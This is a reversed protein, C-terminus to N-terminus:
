KGWLWSKVFGTVGGSEKEVREELDPFDIHNLSIDFFLPKCPIHQFDPPLKALKPIDTSINFEELRDALLKDKNFSKMEEDILQTQLFASAHASCRQSYIMQNLEELETTVEGSGESLDSLQQQTTASHDSCRDYLVIANEWKKVSLHFEAIYYCRKTRYFQTYFDISKNIVGGEELSAIDRMDAYNQLIIDYLRVLDEPKAAKGVRQQQEPDVRLKEVVQEAMVLFRDITKCLRLYLLYDTMLEAEVQQAKSGVGKAKEAEKFLQAADRCKVLVDEYVGLKKELSQCEKVESCQGEIQTLLIKLEDNKVVVTKREWSIEAVTDTTKAAREAILDDLENLLSDGGQEVVKDGSKLNYVCYQVKPGMEEHRQTYLISDEEDVVHSLKDYIQRSGTFSHLAAQWAGQEFQLMGKMYQCYAKAELQTSTDCKLQVCQAELEEAYQVAKKLKAKLHVQKRSETNAFQKLDMAYAWAREARVLIIQLYRIDKVLFEPTIKKNQFKKSGHTFKLGKYMRQLRRTCYQRYRQYDDHKLGHLNQFEKIIKLVKLSFPCVLEEIVEAAPKVTEDVSLVVDVPSVVVPESVM